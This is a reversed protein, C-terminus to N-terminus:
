AARRRAKSRRGRELICTKCDRGAGRTRMYTNEPTFEHGNVCHTAFERIMLAASGRRLNEANTVPELHSPNVCATNRCLHDVVLHKPVPGVLMEYTARHAPVMVGNKRLRGYGRDLPGTFEVCGSPMFRLQTLLNRPWVNRVGVLPDGKRVLRAYHMGCLQRAHSTKECGDISCPARGPIGKPM